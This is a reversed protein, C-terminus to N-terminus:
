ESETGVLFRSLIAYIKNAIQKLEVTETLIETFLARNDSIFQSM